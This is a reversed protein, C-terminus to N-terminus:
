LCFVVLLNNYVVQALQGAAEDLIDDESTINLGELNLDLVPNDEDQLLSINWNICEAMQLLKITVTVLDLEPLVEPLVEM